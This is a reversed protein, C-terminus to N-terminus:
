KTYVKNNESIKYDKSYVQMELPVYTVYNEALKETTIRTDNTLGSPFAAYMPDYSITYYIGDRIRFAEINEEIYKVSYITHGIAKITFGDMADSYNTFRSSDAELFRDYSNVTLNLNNIDFDCLYEETFVDYLHFTKMDKQTHEEYVQIIRDVGSKDTVLLAFINNVSYDKDKDKIQLSEIRDTIDEKALQMPEYKDEKNYSVFLGLKKSPIQLEQPICTVYARALDEITCNTDIFKQGVEYCNCTETWLDYADTNYWYSEGDIGYKDILEQFHAIAFYAGYSAGGFEVIEYDDFCPAKNIFDEPKINSARNYEDLSFDLYIPLECLKQDTFVDYFTYTGRQDNRYERTQIVKYFGSKNVVVITTILGLNINFDKYKIDLDKLRENVEEESIKHYNELYHNDKRFSDKFSGAKNNVYTKQMEPTPALTASPTPTLDENSVPEITEIPITVGVDNSGCGTLASSIIIIASLGAALKNKYKNNKQLKM